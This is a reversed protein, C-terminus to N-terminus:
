RRWPPVTPSETWSNPASEQLSRACAQIPSRGMPNPSSPGGRPVRGNWGEAASRGSPGTASLTKLRHHKRCLCAVNAETTPGGRAPEDHDFAVTHDIDCASAQVTCNPFRCGGDRIRVTEALQRSPRYTRERLRVAVDAPAQRPPPLPSGVGVVPGTSCATASAVRDRDTPTLVRKWTGDAALDRALDADIPGHGFLYGPADDLGLLTSAGVGVLVQVSVGSRAPPDDRTPFRAHTACDDRGCTCDLHTHGSALAVLADARRQADTRPDKACVDFCMARLRGALIRGGAAPLLGDVEAMGDDRAIVRADRDATARRRRERAGEPDLRAILRRGQNRLRTTSTRDAGDLLREEIEALVEDSVKALIEALAHAKALDIRGTAFAARVRSLRWRLDCGLGIMRQAASETLGLIGAVEVHAFEGHRAENRGARADEECRVVFLDTVSEIELYQERAIRAHRATLLEAADAAEVGGSAGGAEFM